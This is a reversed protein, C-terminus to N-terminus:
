NDYQPDLFILFLDDAFIIKPDIRSFSKQGGRGGGGRSDIKHM